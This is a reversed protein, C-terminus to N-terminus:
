ESEVLNLRPFYTYVINYFSWIVKDLGKEQELM